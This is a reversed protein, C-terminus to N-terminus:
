GIISDTTDLLRRAIILRMIENTGELIQHVRTDRVYREVAYEKMYGYGGFIQLANNCIDFGADTAYKKAMACYMSTQPDRSDLKCAALRLMQRAAILETAMDALKFQLAQFDSLSRNFQQREHMYHRAEDIAQQATGISCAAINVRGGDLGQMAIQFGKDEDGLLNDKPVSVSEFTITRTPQCNWGMKDEKRGYSIGPTNAPVAFASIGSAGDDGTRAMVILLDTSGAGSIFCKTGNLVYHSGQLNATTKLSAADSGALPETLCYSGLRQGSALGHGWEAKVEESAYTAVMWTVMNHITIYAAMATCGAALQEFILTASLRSLALGGMNEPVYLSMFGMSGAKRLMEVPFYCDKDWDSSFPKMEKVAFDQSAQQFAIQEDTLDFNM